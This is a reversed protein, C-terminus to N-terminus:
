YKSMVFKYKREQEAYRQCSEIQSQIYQKIPILKYGIDSKNVISLLNSWKAVDIDSIIVDGTYVGDNMCWHIKSFMEKDQNLSIYLLLVQNYYESMSVRTIDVILNIKDTDGYNESCYCLLFNGAREKAEKSLDRFFSNCFHKNLSYPRNKHFKEFIEKLIKESDDINWVINLVSNSDLDSKTLNNFYLADVYDILFRSDKVLINLLLEKKYDFHHQMIAQRIYIRKALEINVGLFNLVIDKFDYESIYINQAEDKQAIIEIVENLLNSDAAFFKKLSNLNLFRTSNWNSITYKVGQIYKDCVLCNPVHHYFSMEWAVKCDVDANRHILSWLNDAKEETLLAVEFAKYPIYGIPNRKIIVELLYIGLDFHNQLTAVVILDLVKEYNSRNNKNESDVISIFDNYFSDVDQKNEFVFSERTEKEKLRTYENYDDYQFYDKDRLKDWSLRLYMEYLRSTYIKSLEKLNSSTVDNRKYWRILEQVYKCHTLSDPNLHNKIISCVFPMDYEMLEKVVDLTQHTYDKLLIFVDESYNTNLSDWINKRLDKIVSNCPLPYYYFSFSHNRWAETQEFQFLLFTKSLEYFAKTYIVDKQNVGKFLEDYLIRQRDFGYDADFPKFTLTNNIKDILESFYCPQKRVYEFSLEIFDKLNNHTYFLDGFLELGCDHKFLYDEKVYCIETPTFNSEPMEVIMNYLFGLTEEQLYIDFVSLFDLTTEKDNNILGLYKKLAPRIRTIVNNYGFTNNVSIICDRLRTKQNKFYGELLTEFSLFGKKIFAKYFFYTSVNQEPIKVYDYQIEVLELRDLREIREIFDDYGLEFADLIPIIIDKDKYPLAYFFAILGLIRINISEAFEGEDNIFTSFYREFLDSSDHFALLSQKEIAVLAAMIALRPNGKAVRTIERHYRNNLIHFPESKIIDIIHEDTLKDIFYSVFKSEGLCKEVTHYAYDRVTMLIKLNGKRQSKYFGLVQGLCDIRNADDVFLIFDKDQHLYQSLDEILSAHKYSICYASYTINDKVFSRIAELALKTKGVGPTGSLIVLDDEAIYKSLEKLENERHVFPNNLPTAIGKSAKDYEEIFQEISVVQGSDLPINLYEHAINRHNISLELTLTDLSYLELQIGTGDLVEGISIIEDPKLNFNFCLIIKAIDVTSIGTKSQDICKELDKILKSVGDTVNTSYEVFVYKGNRLRFCSDPTGKRTKQKGVQSGARLYASYNRNMSVLFSDCLDQFVTENIAILANQISQINGM